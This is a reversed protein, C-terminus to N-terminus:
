GEGVIGWASLTKAIIEIDCSFSVESDLKCGFLGVVTSAKSIWESLMLKQNPLFRGFFDEIASNRTEGEM